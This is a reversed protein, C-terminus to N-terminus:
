QALRAADGPANADSLAADSLAADSIEGRSADPLAADEGPASSADRRAADLEYEPAADAASADPSAADAAASPAGADAIAPLRSICVGSQREPPADPERYAPMCIKRRGDSTLARAGWPNDDTLEVCAYGDRCDSGSECARMCYTQQLRSSNTAESCEPSNGLAARYAVCIAEDACSDPVCNFSTCYGGPFRQTAETLCIREVETRNCDQTM